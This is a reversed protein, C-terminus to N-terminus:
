LFEGNVCIGLIVMRVPLGLSWLWVRGAGVTVSLFSILVDMLLLGFLGEV